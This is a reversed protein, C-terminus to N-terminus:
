GQIEEALADRESGLLPAAKVLAAQDPKALEITGGAVHPMSTTIAPMKCCLM